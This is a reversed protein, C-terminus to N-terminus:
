ALKALAFGLSIEKQRNALSASLVNVVEVGLLGATGVVWSPSLNSSSHTKNPFFHM